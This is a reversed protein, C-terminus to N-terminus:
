TLMRIRLFKDAPPAWQENEYLLLNAGAPQTSSFIPFSGLLKFQKSHLMDRLTGQVEFDLRM